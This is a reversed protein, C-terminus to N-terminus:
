INLILPKVYVININENNNTGITSGIHTGLLFWKNNQKVIWPSGSYGHKSKFNSKIFYYPVDIKNIEHNITYNDKEIYLLQRDLDEKIETIINGTFTKSSNIMYVKNNENNYNFNNSLKLEIFYKLKDPKIKIIAIEQGEQETDFGSTYVLNGYITYANKPFCHGCTYLHGNCILTITVTGNIIIDGLDYKINIKDGM